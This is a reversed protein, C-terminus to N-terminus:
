NGAPVPAGSDRQDHGSSARSTTAWDMAPAIESEVTRRQSLCSASLGQCYWDQIETRSGAKRGM